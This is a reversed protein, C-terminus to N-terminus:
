FVCILSSVTVDQASLSDLYFEPAIPLNLEPQSLKKDTVPKIHASNLSPSLTSEYQIATKQSQNANALILHCEEAELEKPKRPPLPPPQSPRKKINHKDATCDNTACPMMKSTTTLFTTSMRPPVPPPPGRKHKFTSLSKIDSAFHPVASSPEITHSQDFISVLEKRKILLYFCVPATKLANVSELRTMSSVSKGEIEIIEDGEKLSGLLSGVIRSAPSDTNISQIFLRDILEDNNLGGEFKLAMGLREGPLRYVVVQEMLTKQSSKHQNSSKSNSDSAIQVVTVYDNTKQKSTTTQEDIEVVTVFQTNLQKVDKSLNCNTLNLMKGVEKNCHDQGTPLILSEMM